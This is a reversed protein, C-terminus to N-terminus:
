DSFDREELLRLELINSYGVIRIMWELVSTSNNRENSTTVIQERQVLVLITRLNRCARV